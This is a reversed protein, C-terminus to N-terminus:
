KENIRIIKDRKLNLKKLNNLHLKLLDKILMQHNEKKINKRQILKNKMRIYFM